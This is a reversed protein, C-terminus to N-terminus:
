KATFLTKIRALWSGLWTTRRKTAGLDRCTGGNQLELDKDVIHRVYECLGIGLQDAKIQAAKYRDSHPGGLAMQITYNGYNM